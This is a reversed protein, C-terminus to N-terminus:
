TIHRKNGFAAKEIKIKSKAKGEKEQLLNCFSLMYQTKTRNYDFLSWDQM